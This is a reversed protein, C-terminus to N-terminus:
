IMRVKDMLRTVREKLDNDITSTVGYFRAEEEKALMEKELLAMKRLVVNM